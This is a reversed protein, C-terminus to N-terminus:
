AIAWRASGGCPLEEVVDDALEPSAALAASIPEAPSPLQVWALKLMERLHKRGQTTIAFRTREPRQGQRETAAPVVHGEKVLSRMVSYISGFQVPFWFRFSEADLIRKIRYGHLPEEALLWLVLLRTVNVRGAAPGGSDGLEGDM